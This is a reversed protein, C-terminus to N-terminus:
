SKDPVLSLLFRHLDELSVPDKPDAFRNFVIYHQQHGYVHIGCGTCASVACVPHSEKYWSM